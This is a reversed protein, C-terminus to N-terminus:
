YAASLVTLAEPRIGWGSTSRMTYLTTIGGDPIPTPIETPASVDTLMLSTATQNPTLQAFVNTNIKANAKPVKLEPAILLIADAGGSGQGILTDDAAFSVDDGGAWKAVTEVLGAATEVGAGVRQFQTLSVVGSYSIQSIFRQPALFVLRLPQGIQLTRVKLAGILNLLYQALQGSDWTSYGTNGNSDAGLSVATAGATNILGEGNAPNFGYLLANRMQQAIGQRAALRMAEPLSYGWHSTAAEDFGDYQARTQMRYTATSIMSPIVSASPLNNVQSQNAQVQTTLQIKKAYVYLDSEGLRPMPNEGALTTFAGSALSYQMILETMMYHPNATIFSPAFGSM